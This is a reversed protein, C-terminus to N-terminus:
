LFAEKVNELNVDSVTPLNIGMRSIELSNRNSFCFDRYLPMRSLSYFFPRADIGKDKLKKLIEGRGGNKILASVLWTIKERKPLDDRQFELFEIDSFCKKYKNEIRERINHIFAIRKLQAVGIAAQLNTMRYNYGVVEHWYRKSRSMGHDKLIRLKDNLEQSNVVCMGGEGTTIIKNGFFSFCGIDGFSGVKKDDFKAGHAQACDEIVFIGYKKAVRMIAEMNCPQGYLHVPIIAKTQPSVAKKIERPDICWSHREVDVIVPTANCHLVVNITAAFTLDPVIVEDGKGVGLALLALHLAATGNSTAIGYRCECYGSFDKEFKEIYVGSSSIWTSLFADVLYKFEEGQLHPSVIPVHVNKRYEIYDVVKFENDVVPVIWIEHTMKKVVHAYGEDQRAYVFDKKLVAGIREQLNHGDLLLRRIDGDTLVGRLKRNGDVVFIAGKGNINIKQLAEVLTKRKDCILKEVM